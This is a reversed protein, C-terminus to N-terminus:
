MRGDDGNSDTALATSSQEQLEGLLVDANQAASRNEAVNFQWVPEHETLERLGDLVAQELNEPMGDSQPNWGNATATAYFDFASKVEDRLVDNHAIVFKQGDAIRM